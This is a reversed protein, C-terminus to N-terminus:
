DDLGEPILAALYAEVLPGEDPMASLSIASLNVHPRRKAAPPAPMAPFNGNNGNTGMDNTPKPIGNMGNSHRIKAFNGSNGSNGLNQLPAVNPQLVPQGADQATNISPKNFTQSNQSNQSNTNNLGQQQGLDNAPFNGAPQDPQSNQSNDGMIAQESFAWARAASKGPKYTNRGESTLALLGDNLWQSEIESKTYQIPQRQAARRTQILAMTKDPYILAYRVGKVTKWEGIRESRYYRKEYESDSAAEDMDYLYADKSELLELLVGYAVNGPRDETMIGQQSHAMRASAADFAGILSAADNAGLVGAFQMHRLLLRFAARNAALANSTRAHGAQHAVEDRLLRFRNRVGEPGDTDLTAALSQIFGRWFAALHGMEGAQQVSSLAPLNVSKEPHKYLIIRALQGTDGTPRDEATAIMLGRAPYSKQVELSATARLRSAGESYNHLVKALVKESTTAQKYDDVCYLADRYTFSLLELGSATSDWKPIAGGDSGKSTFAPGYLSLFVKVLSTKHNGTYGHPWFVPRSSDGTFRHILALAAMSALLLAEDQQCVDGALLSCFAAAGAHADGAGCLAYHNGNMRPDLSARHQLAIGTSNISGDPALYHWLGAIQQWGLATYEVRRSPGDGRNSLTKIARYAALGEDDAAGSHLATRLAAIGKKPDAWVEAAIDAHGALCQPGWLDFRHKSTRNVGDDQIVDESVVAQYNALPQAALWIGGDKYTAPCAGHQTYWEDFPRAQNLLSQLAAAGSELLYSDLDIKPTDISRPLRVVRVITGRAKIGEYEKQLADIRDALEQKQQPTLTSNRKNLHTATQAILQPIHAGTLKQGSAITAREGPSLYRSDNRSESDYCLYVTKRALADLYSTPMYTVGPHAVAPMSLKNARWAQTVALAKFEGETLIVMDSEALIDAGYLVPTAGAYLPVAPSAYKRSSNDLARTRLMSTIGNSTYPITLANKLLPKIKGQPGTLGGTRMGEYADNDGTHWLALAASSSLIDGPHYGLGAAKITEDTFGRAHLYALAAVGQSTYLNAACWLAAGEYGKHAQAIEDPALGTIVPVPGGTFATAGETYKCQSCLWFPNYGNRPAVIQYFRDTGGCRPCPQGKM